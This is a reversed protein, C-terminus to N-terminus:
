TESTQTLKLEANAPWVKRLVFGMLWLIAATIITLVPWFKWYATFTGQWGAEVSHSVNVNLEAATFLRSLLQVILYWLLAYVWSERDMGVRRLALFGVIIGGVHALTSASTAEIEAASPMRTLYTGWGLAVYVFWVVLGPIMWLSAVRILLPHNTFLGIALVLNGINCMWLTHGFQGIRWYHIAQLLFFVLPLFGLLRWDRSSLHARYRPLTVQEM